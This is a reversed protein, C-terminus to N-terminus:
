AGLTLALVLADVAPAAQRPYYGRRRGVEAFGARAYLARAPANDTAVELFLKAVSRTRLELALQALLAAGLGKGQASPAVAITLLEAEDLTVRALAFGTDQAVCIVGDQDLLAALEAASWPRAPFCLAHLAALADPTM